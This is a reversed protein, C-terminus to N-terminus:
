RMHGMMSEILVKVTLLGFSIGVVLMWSELLKLIYRRSKSVPKLLRTTVNPMDTDADLQQLARLDSIFVRYGMLNKM